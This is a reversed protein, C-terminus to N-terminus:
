PQISDQELPKVGWAMYQAGLPLKAFCRDIGRLFRNHAPVSLIHQTRVNTLEADVLLSRTKASKLLVANADFECNNVVRRTVPNFPNHEFVMVIGDARTLRAMESAFNQWHTPPVHHMVCMAIVLDYQQGQLKSAVGSAVHYSVEPNNKRAVEICASSPDAGSVSNFCTQLLPHINGVGCGMDLVDMQAPDRGLRRCTASLYGLKVREFYDSKLNSFSLAENVKDTYSQNYSDFESDNNM